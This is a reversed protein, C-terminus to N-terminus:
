DDSDYRSYDREPSRPSSFSQPYFDNRQHYANMKRLEELIEHMMRLLDRMTVKKDRPWYGEDPSRRGPPYRDDYDSMTAIFRHRVLNLFNFDNHYETKAIYHSEFGGVKGKIPQRSIHVYRTIINLHM